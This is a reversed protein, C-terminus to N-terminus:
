LGNEKHYIEDGIGGKIEKQPWASVIESKNEGISKTVVKTYMNYTSSTSEKFYVKRDDNQSSVFIAEPSEITDKVASLNNQMVPHHSVIHGMWAGHSCIVDEGLINKTEILNGM